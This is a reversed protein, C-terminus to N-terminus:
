RPPPGPTSSISLTTSSRRRRHAEISIVGVPLASTTRVPPNELPPVMARLRSRLDDPIRNGHIFLCLLSPKEYGYWWSSKKGFDPEAGYRLRFGGLSLRGDRSHAGMAVAARELPGLRALLFRLSDGELAECFAAVREAKRGVSPVAAVQALLELEAITHLALAEAVTTSDEGQPYFTEL